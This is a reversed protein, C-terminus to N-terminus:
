DKDSKGFLPRKWGGLEGVPYDEEQMITGLKTGICVPTAELAKKLYKLDKVDKELPDYGVVKKFAKREAEYKPKKSSKELSVLEEEVLALLIEKDGDVM